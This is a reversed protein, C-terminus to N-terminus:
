DDDSDDESDDDEHDDDSSDDDGHDDDHSDDDEHDGDHSDDDDDDDDDDHDRGSRHDDDDDDDDDHGPGHDDDSDDDGISGDSGVFDRDRRKIEVGPTTDDDSSVAGTEQKILAGTADDYVMEYKVGDRIGEVKVQSLGVKIEVRTFGQDQLQQALANTDVGGFATTGLLAAGTAGALLISKLKM